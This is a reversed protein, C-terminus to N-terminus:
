YSWLTNKLITTLEKIFIDIEEKTNYENFSIRITNKSRIINNYINNIVYSGEEKKSNCASTSSVYIDKLSLAELVVSAKAKLLSFNLIYYSTNKPLNLIIGDIEKLKSVSYCYLDKIISKNRIYNSRNIKITKYLAAIAAIDVTSSRYGYEQNGGDLLPKLVINSNLILGGIGKLSHIKHGAFTLLDCYQLYSDDIKLFGQAFDSHLLINKNKLFNYVEKINLIAGTENNTSMISVLITENKILSDLEELSVEHDKTVHLYSVEINSEDNFTKLVNLISKHEINTTIIHIKRNKYKNAVYGKLALNNAETASSTFIIRKNKLNLINLIEEKIKEELFANSKGGKHISTSNFYNNTSYKLYVELTEKYPITSSASDLYIM